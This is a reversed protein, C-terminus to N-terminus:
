AIKWAACGVEKQKFTFADYVYRAEILAGSIGATDTHVKTEAIQQPMANCQPHTLIMATNAPMRSSPVKVIKVGDVEGVYGSIVIKQGADSDKIFAPDQKIFNYAAPTVACIRGDQPIENDDLLENLQLFSAYANTKTLAAPTPVNGASTASALLVGFAYTDVMPIYKESQQAKMFEGTKNMITQQKADGKDIVASFSKDQTMIYEVVTDSVDTPTGYRNSGSRTYDGFDQTTLTYIRATKVGTFEIKAGFFAKSLSKVNFRQDVKSLDKRSLNIAM